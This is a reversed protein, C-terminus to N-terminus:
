RGGPNTWASPAAPAPQAARRQRALWGMGFAGAAGVALVAIAVLPRYWFWAVAIVLPALVFTLLAAIIGTGAGIISGFIPVVDALVVLPRMIMIFGLFMVIAGVARLVWTLIRNESVANQFMEAASRSGERLMFLRDGARTQYSEFGQGAQRAILSAPGAEVVSFSIRTDGIRPTTPDNGLYLRGDAMQLGPRAVATPQPVWERATGFGRLQAENVAHAGLRADNALFERATVRMPPNQHGDPQRFRSSDIAEASWVRSYHYTTVTEQGGGLRSRTESRSEERWQYMEVQRVLRLANSVAAPFEPDRLTGAATLNASLHVLRGELAPDVRDGPAATVLGAGEALSRATQVARGENWFLLVCAIPICILGVLIGAFAGKIRDWWSTTTTDQFTAPGGQDDQPSWQSSM